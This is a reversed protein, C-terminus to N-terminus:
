AAAEAFGDQEREAQVRCPDHQGQAATGARVAAHSHEGGEAVAEAVGVAPLEVAGPPFQGPDMGDAPGEEGLQGVSFEDDRAVDVVRQAAGLACRGDESGLLAGSGAVDCGQVFAQCVEDGFHRLGPEAVAAASAPCAPAPLAPPM